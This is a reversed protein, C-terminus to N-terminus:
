YYIREILMGISLIIISYLVIFLGNWFGEGQFEELSEAEAAEAYPNSFLNYFGYLPSKRRLMAIKPDEDKKFLQPVSLISAFIGFGYLTYFIYKLMDGKKAFAILAAIVSLAFCTILAYIISKKFGNIIYKKKQEKM